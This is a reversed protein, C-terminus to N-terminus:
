AGSVGGVPPETPELAEATPREFETRLMLEDVVQMDYGRRVVDFVTESAPPAQGEDVAFLYRDVQGRDYGTWATPIRAEVLFGPTVPGDPIRGKPRDTVAEAPMEGLRGLGAFAAMGLVVVAVVVIAIWM